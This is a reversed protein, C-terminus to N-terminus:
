GPGEWIMWGKSLWKRRLNIRYGRRALTEAAAAYWQRLGWTQMPSTEAAAAKWASFFDFIPEGPIVRHIYNKPLITQFELPDFGLHFNTFFVLAEKHWGLPQRRLLNAAWIAGSPNSTGEILLGGPQVYRALQEWAPLVEAEDYQRLVNFARIARVSEGSELPLNFGGLRFFTIEDAFPLAAAVREPEIEVGLIKLEPNLRRFRSASELTTVAEAGYGLDVFLAADRKAILGPEYLLLFNDVQRLRNRATKGRTIVGQPKKPIALPHKPPM